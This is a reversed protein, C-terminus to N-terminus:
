DAGKEAAQAAQIAKASEAASAAERTSYIDSATVTWEDGGGSRVAVVVAEQDAHQLISLVGVDDRAISYGLGDFVVCNMGITVPVGDATKPLKDVITKLWENDAKLDALERLLRVATESIINTESM